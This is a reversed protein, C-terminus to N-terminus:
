CLEDYVKEMRSVCKDWAAKEVILRRSRQGCHRRLREDEVLRIIRDALSRYDRPPYLLGNVGSNIWERNGAIDTTVCPLGCAMAELLSVSTSDVFSTSVYIDAAALYRPVDKYPVPSTFRVYRDVDLRRALKRAAGELPGKGKILFKVNKHRVVVLPVARILCSIDYHPFFPRTSVVVVDDEEINLSKRVVAGSLDPSFLSTDVGFPIVEVVNEQIGASVWIRKMVEADVIIRGARTAAYMSLVRRFLDMRNLELVEM